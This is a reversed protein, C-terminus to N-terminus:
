FQQLSFLVGFAVDPKGITQITIFGNNGGNIGFNDLISFILIAISINRYLLNKKTLLAISLFSFLVCFFILNLYHLQIFNNELWLLSSLYEYISSWSYWINLNSLGFVIKSENIWLQHNLHYLGADYHLWMGYSSISLCIPIFIQVYLNLSKLNIVFRLRINYIILLAAIFYLIRLIVKGPLFFNLLFQLNGVFFISILIYFFYYPLGFVEKKDHNEYKFKTFILLLSRGMLFM